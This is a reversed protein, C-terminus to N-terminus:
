IQTIGLTFLGALLGGLAIWSYVWLLFTKILASFWSSGYTGRLSMFINVPFWIQLAMFGGMMWSKPLILVLASVSFLFTMMNMSVVLHDFIYFQRRYIYLITLAFALAPLLFVAYRHALGFVINMYITPNDMIKVIQKEFKDRDMGVIKSVEKKGAEGPKVAKAGGDKHLDDKDVIIPSSIKIGDLDGDLTKLTKAQAADFKELEKPSANGLNDRLTNTIQQAQDMTVAVKRPHDEQLHVLAHHTQTEAAFIFLLLSVLFLRFPPVFRARKGELYRRNLTGPRFFVMPLTRWLRSDFHFLGEVAEFVLHFISRHHDHASQGCTHCFHGLLEAQCNKCLTGAPPARHYSEEESRFRRFFSNLGDLSLIELEKM